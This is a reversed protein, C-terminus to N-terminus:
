RVVEEEALQQTPLPLGDLLFGIDEGGPYSRHSGIAQEM